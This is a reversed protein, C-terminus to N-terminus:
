GNIRVEQSMRTVLKGSSPPDDWNTGSVGQCPPGAGLLVLSCQSFQTSWKLVMERDIHRVDLVVVTTPFHSEVVRSALPNAEVSIHGLVNAELLDLAVRLAGIGDFLGISLVQHETRDEALQGRLLGISVMQGFPTLSHSM